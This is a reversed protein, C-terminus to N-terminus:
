KAFPVYLPSLDVTNFSSPMRDHLSGFAAGFIITNDMSIFVGEDANLNM